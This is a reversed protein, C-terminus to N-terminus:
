YIEKNYCQECYVIEPREPSYSTKIDSGCEACKRDRLQKPNRLKTRETHRVDPHKTPLPLNHKRYFDLEQKVVRFPRKSIECEIVQQLIDDSVMTISDPIDQAKLLKGAYPLSTEQDLRKFWKAIVEDRDSPYYDSAITENYAFPSFQPFFFEWREKDVIMKEIIQPVLKEYEDKTYQKNFICYEKNRLGICWFINHCGHCNVCYYAETSQYVVITFAVKNEDLGTDVTEYLLSANAGVGYSDYTDNLVFWGHTSYKCDRAEKIDFCCQCNKTSELNDGTSDECHILDAYKHVAVKTLTAFHDKYAQIWSTTDIKMESLKQFYEQKTYQVNEICYSRNVLNICGVCNRCSNCNHLFYSESCDTCKECWFLKYSSHLDVCEYCAELATGWLLDMSSKVDAMWEGYLSDEVSYSGFIMYCNKTDLCHNAYESNVSNVNYLAVNPTEKRLKEFQSFFSKSADFDKGYKMPDWQDSRWYNKDCISYGSEPHYISIVSKGTLDCKRRYLKRENRFAMRRQQRCDPCLTPSPIQYKKWGFVPSIKDYFELDKDTIEFSAWCQKCQKTQIIKEM